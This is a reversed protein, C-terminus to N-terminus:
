DYFHFRWSKASPKTNYLGESSPSNPVRLRKYSWAKVCTKELSFFHTIPIYCCSSAHQWHTGAEMTGCMPRIQSGGKAKACSDPGRKARRCGQSWIKLMTQVPARKPRFWKPELFGGSLEALQIPALLFPKGDRMNPSFVEQCYLCHM